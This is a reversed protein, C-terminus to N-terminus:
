QQAGSPSIYSNLKCVLGDRNEKAAVSLHSIFSEVLERSAASLTATGCFDAAYAKVLTPDLTHERILLRLRDRLKPHGNNSHNFNAQAESAHTRGSLSKSNTSSGFEEVSCVGIGYAKRLARNVARTEAIRLEAGQVEASVNSPEADGYAVFSKSSKPVYVTAKFVWRQAAADSFHEDLASEIGVCRRRFALRVLGSHTVYWRNNLDTIEGLAISFKYRQLLISLEDLRTRSLSGWRRRALHLQKRVWKSKMPTGGIRHKAALMYKASLM